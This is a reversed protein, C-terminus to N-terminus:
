NTWRNKTPPSSSSGWTRRLCGGYFLGSVVALTACCIWGVLDAKHTFFAQVLPVVYFCGALVLFATILKRGSAGRQHATGYFVGCGAIVVLACGTLLPGAQLIGRDRWMGLAPLILAGGLVTGFIAALTAIIRIMIKEPTSIKKFEKELLVAEGIQAVSIEFAKPGDLGSLVQREVDERLHNELEDLPVPTKIGAALMQRRWDAIAQKLDFM